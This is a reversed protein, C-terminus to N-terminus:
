QGTKAAPAADKQIIKTSPPLAPPQDPVPKTGKLLDPPGKAPDLIVKVTQHGDDKRPRYTTDPKVITGPPIYIGNTTFQAKPMYCWIVPVVPADRVKPMDSDPIGPEAPESGDPCKGHLKETQRFWVYERLFACFVNGTKLIEKQEPGRYLISGVPCKKGPFAFIDFPRGGILQEPDTPQTITKALLEKESEKLQDTTVTKVVPAGAVPKAVQQATAPLAAVSLLFLTAFFIHKM